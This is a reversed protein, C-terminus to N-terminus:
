PMTEIIETARLTMIKGELEQSSQVYVGLEPAFWWQNEAERTHTVGSVMIDARERYRLQLADFRGLPVTVTERGVVSFGYEFEAIQVRDLGVRCGLLLQPMSPKELPCLVDIAGTGSISKDAELPWLAALGPPDHRFAMTPAGPFDGSSQTALLARFAEGQIGLRNELGTEAEIVQRVSIDDGKGQFQRTVFALAEPQAADPADFWAAIAMISREMDSTEDIEKFDLIYRLTIPEVPPVYDIRATQPVPDPELVADIRNELASTWNPQIVAAIGWNRVAGSIDGVDRYADGLGYYVGERFPRLDRAILYDPIADGPRGMRALVGARHFRSFFYDGKLAISRDFGALVDAERGEEGITQLVRAHMHWNWYQDPGVEILRTTDILAEPARDVLRLRYARDGLLGEDDPFRELGLTLDAIESDTDGGDQHADARERYMWAQVGEGAEILATCAALREEHAADDDKCLAESASLPPAVLCLALFASLHTRM